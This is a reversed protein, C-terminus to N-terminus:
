QTTCITKKHRSLSSNAMEKNCQPCNVRKRNNALVADRNKIHREKFQVKLKDKNEQYYIAKHRKIKDANKVNYVKKYEKMEEKHTARYEAEYQSKKEIHKLRYEAFYKKLQEQNDRRYQIIKEQNDQRYEKITRGAINKNVCNDTERIYHGEIKCLEDKNECPTNFLLEIYADNYKLIEFSSYNTIKAGNKFRKYCSKHSNMRKSLSSCTSGIYVKDTQYSRITYVKGKSYDIPM